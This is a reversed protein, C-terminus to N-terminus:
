PRSTPSCLIMLNGLNWVCGFATSCTATQREKFFLMIGLLLVCMTIVTLGLPIFLFSSLITLGATVYAKAYYEAPTLSIGARQLDKELKRIQQGAHITVFEHQPNLKELYNVTQWTISYKGKPSGNIVLIRM